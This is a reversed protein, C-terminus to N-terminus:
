VLVFKMDFIFLIATSNASVEEPSKSHGIPKDKRNMVQSAATTYGLILKGDSFRRFKPSIRMKSGFYVSSFFESRRIEIISGAQM